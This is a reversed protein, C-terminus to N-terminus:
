RIKEMDFAEANSSCRDEFSGEKFKYIKQIIYKKRSLYFSNLNIFKKSNRNAHCFRGKKYYSFFFVKKCLLLKKSLMEKVAKHTEIHRKHGYEGNGGHTFIYDYEGDAFKKIRKIISEAQVDDIKDDELDSMCSKAKLFNCAKKFKPARDGDNRRCLSIITSDWNNKLLIGGMWITEDDPHAVIVLVKKKRM